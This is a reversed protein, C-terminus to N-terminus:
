AGPPMRRDSIDGCTVHALICRRTLLEMMAPEWANIFDAHLTLPSDGSALAVRGQTTGPTFRAALTLRPIQVPHAADCRDRTYSMHSRHDPSDLNRGDWCNPFTVSAELLANRPCQPPLPQKAVVAGQGEIRCHFGAVRPQQPRTAHADGAVMRLGLPIPRIASTDLTGARYYARVAYPLRREGNVLLSPMWYTAKDKTNECNTPSALLQGVTSSAHVALNGSFTHEHPARGHQGPLLLPDDFATKVVRCVTVWAVDQRFENGASPSLERFSQAQAESPVGVPLGLVVGLVVLLWARRIRRSRSSSPAM